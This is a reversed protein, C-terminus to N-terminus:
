KAFTVLLEHMVIGKDNLLESTLKPKILWNCKEAAFWVGSSKGYYYSCVRGKCIENRDVVKLKFGLRRRTEM